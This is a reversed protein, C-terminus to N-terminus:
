NINPGIIASKIYLETQKNSHFAGVTTMADYKYWLSGNLMFLTLEIGIMTGYHFELICYCHEMLDLIVM